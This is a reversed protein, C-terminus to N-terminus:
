GRGRVIASDGGRSALFGRGVEGSPRSILSEIEADSRDASQDEPTEPLHSSLIMEAENAFERRSLENIVRLADLSTIRGDGSVDFYMGTFEEVSSIVPLESDTVRFIQNIVALADLSTVNGSRNVDWKSLVNQWQAPSIVYLSVEGYRVVQALSEGVMIPAEITAGGLFTLNQNADVQILLTGDTSVVSELLRTDIVLEAATDSSIVIKEFGVVRGDLFDVLEVPQNLNLVLEDHGEGGDLSTFRTGQIIVTDDGASADVNVPGRTLALPDFVIRQDLQNFVVEIGDRHTASAIRVGTDEDMLFVAEDDESLRLTSPQYDQVLLNLTADQTAAFSWDSADADVRLVIVVIEDAEFVLDPVGRATVIQPQDWQQPTFSLRVTDLTVDDSVFNLDVFVDSLPQASLSVSFSDQGRLEDVITNNGFETLLLGAVEDDQVKVAANAIAFGDAAAQITVVRDGDLIMNDSIGIALVHAAAGVPITVMAPLQLDSGVFSLAVPLPSALDQMNRHVVLTTASSGDAEVVTEQSFSLTLTAVDDDRVVLEALDSQHSEASVTLQVVNDGDVVDDDVARIEFTASAAGRPITVKSALTAETFDDSHLSVVLPDDLNADSRTVTGIAVVPLDGALVVNDMAFYAPTNMGFDGVDSSSLSFELRTAALLSSVDVVTWQDIIYDQSNDEFRFDALYFEVIGVSNDDTDRGEITLLFFDPDDGSEGGFQKAFADGESMSLAAYTSNTVMLSEFGLGSERSITPLTGGAFANAIAYTASNNAGGGTIASYQNGFGPTTHDTTNSVSWGGWSEFTPDFSNNLRVGGSDFGATLDAGNNFSEGPLKAGIDELSITPPADSESLTTRDLELSLTPPPIDDNIISVAHQASSFGEAAAHITVIRDEDVVSNDNATFM